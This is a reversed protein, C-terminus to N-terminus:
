GRPCRLEPAVLSTKSFAESGPRHAVKGKRQLRLGLHTWSIMDMNMSATLYNVYSEFTQDAALYSLFKTEEVAETASRFSGSMNTGPM